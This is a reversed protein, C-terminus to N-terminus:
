RAARPSIWRGGWAWRLHSRFFGVVAVLWTSGTMELVLWGMVIFEMYLSQWWLANGIMLRRFDPILLPSLTGDFLPHDSFRKAFM